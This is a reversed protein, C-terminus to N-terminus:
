GQAAQKTPSPKVQHVKKKPGDALAVVNKIPKRKRCKRNHIAADMLAWARRHLNASNALSLLDNVADILQGITQVGSKNERGRWARSLHWYKQVKVELPMESEESNM